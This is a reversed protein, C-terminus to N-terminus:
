LIVRVLVQLEQCCFGVEINEQCSHNKWVCLVLWICRRIPQFDFCWQITLRPYQVELIVYGGTPQILKLEACVFCVNPCDLIM